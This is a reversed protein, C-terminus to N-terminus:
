SLTHRVSFHFFRAASSPRDSNRAAQSLPRDLIPLPYLQGLEVGTHKFVCPEISLGDARTPLARCEPLPGQGKRARRLTSRDDSNTRAGILFRQRQRDRQILIRGPRAHKHTRVIGCWLSVLSMPATPHIRAAVASRPRAPQRLSRCTAFM